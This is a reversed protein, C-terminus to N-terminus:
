VERLSFKAYDREATVTLPKTYPTVKKKDKIYEDCKYITVGKVNNVAINKSCNLNKCYNCMKSEFVDVM